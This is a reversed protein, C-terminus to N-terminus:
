PGHDGLALLSLFFHVRQGFTALGGNWIHIVGYFTWVGGIRLLRRGGGGRADPARGRRGHERLMSIYIGTALLFCYFIRAHLLNWIGSFDALVLLQRQDIVHYYLNGVFAAAFVALLTRLWPRARYRAFTPYFFFEVLLEKFYYYYRSWFELITEALLPKYTNRFVNFGCLRLVGIYEHGKAALRLTNWILDCYVSVWAMAVSASATGQILDHLRPTGLSYGGLVIAFPTDPDGYVASRMLLMVATWVQALLLLKIGALQSRALAEASQAENRSLYDFGKGYPTETGRWAPWLYFLHDSFSTGAAKGRQGSKLLYGCRWLVFPAVLTLLMLVRRWLGGDSPTLWLVVLMAWFLLHLAVQPRRRIADPLRRFHVAGLYCLLFLGLVCPVGLMWRLGSTLAMDASPMAPRHGLSSALLVLSVVSLVQRRRRPDLWGAVREVRGAWWAVLRADEHFSAVTRFGARAATLVTM